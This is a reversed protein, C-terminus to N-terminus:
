LSKLLKVTVFMVSCILVGFFVLIDGYNSFMSNVVIIYDKTLNEWNLLSLTFFDSILIFDSTYFVASGFLFCTPYSTPVTKSFLNLECTLIIFLYFILLAGIIVLLLLIFLFTSSSSKIILYINLLYVLFLIVILQFPTQSIAIATLFMTNFLLAAAWITLTGSLLCKLFFALLIVWGLNKNHFEFNSNSIKIFKNIKILFFM